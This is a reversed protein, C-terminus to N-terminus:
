GEENKKREVEEYARLLMDEMECYNVIKHRDEKPQKEDHIFEQIDSWLQRHGELSRPGEDSNVLRNMISQGRETLMTHYQMFDSQAERLWNMDM